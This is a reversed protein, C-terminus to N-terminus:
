DRDKFSSVGACTVAVLNLIWVVIWGIVVVGGVVMFLEGMRCRWKGLTGAM